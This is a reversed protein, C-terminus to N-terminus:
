NCLESAYEPPIRWLEAVTALDHHLDGPVHVRTGGFANIVSGESIATVITAAPPARHIGRRM